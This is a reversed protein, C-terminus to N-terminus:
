NSAKKKGFIGAFLESFFRSVSHRVKKSFLCLLGFILAVGGISGLVIWLTRNTAKSSDGMNSNNQVMGTSLSDGSSSEVEIDELSSTSASRTGYLVVDITKALPVVSKLVLEKEILNTGMEFLMARASLQQNYNGKGIYIDKILGPYVEDAYAKINLAFEKNIASNVNASGVVMRVKSMKEGNVTTIYESRPTADRHIDFIADLGNKLLVSATQESRDYAGSDHPLHLDESYFVKVGMNEFQTKLASGIDHIGGAGYISDTGDVDNYCEDNHTHYLGIKKEVSANVTELKNKRTISYVPMKVDETFKAVATKEEENVSQIKYLKNDASIYEDDVNIGDGKMFVVKSSDDADYVVFCNTQEDQALAKNVENDCHPCFSFSFLAFSVILLAFLGLEFVRNKM